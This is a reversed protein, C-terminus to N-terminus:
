EHQYKDVIDLVKDPPILKYEEFWEAVMERIM